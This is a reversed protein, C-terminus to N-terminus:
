SGMEPNTGIVNLDDTSEIDKLQPLDSTDNIGFYDLFSQSVNYTVPNGPGDKKGSIVILEKELLKHISYDASVGRIQEIETRTIPQRYAIISLTELAATSLRKKEKVNMLISIGEHYQPKTLFQFGGGTKRLEFASSEGIHKVISNELSQNILDETIEELRHAYIKHLCELIETKTVPHDSAFILAEIYLQIELAFNDM